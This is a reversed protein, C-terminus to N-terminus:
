VRGPKGAYVVFSRHQKILDSESGSIKIKPIEPGACGGLFLFLLLLVTAPFSSKIFMLIKEM